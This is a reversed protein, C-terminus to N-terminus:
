VLSSIPTKTSGFPNSSNEGDIPTDAQKLLIGDHKVVAFLYYKRRTRSVAPM